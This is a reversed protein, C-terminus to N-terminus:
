DEPPAPLRRRNSPWRWEVCLLIAGILLLHAGAFLPLMGADHPRRPATMATRYGMVACSLGILMIGAAVQLMPRARLARFLRIGRM